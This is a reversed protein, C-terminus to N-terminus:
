GVVQKFTMFVLHQKLMLVLVYLRAKQELVVCSMNVDTSMGMLRIANIDKKALREEDNRLATVSQSTGLAVGQSSM